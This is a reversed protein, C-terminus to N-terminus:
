PPPRGSAVFTLLAGAYSPHRIVRYPGTQIVPQGPQVDIQLTFCRGLVVIAWTRLALGVVMVGVVVASVVGFTLDGPKRIVMEVLAALQTLYVTWIIQTFTGHDEQTRSGDFPTYSPQLVNALVSVGLLIWPQPLRIIPPWLWVLVAGVVTWLLIAQMGRRAADRM